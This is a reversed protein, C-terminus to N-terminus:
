WYPKLKKVASISASLAVNLSEMKANVWKLNDEALEPETALIGTLKVLLIYEEFGLLLNLLHSRFVEREQEHYLNGVVIGTLMGAALQWHAQEVSKCEADLRVKKINVKVNEWAGDLWKNAEFELPKNLNALTEVPMENRWGKTALWQIFGLILQNFAKSNFEHSIQQLKDEPMKRSSLLAILPESSEIDKRYPSKRDQLKELQYFSEIWSAQGRWQKFREIFKDCSSDPLYPAFLTLTHILLSVGDMVRRFSKPKHDEAFVLENHQIFNLGYSLSKVFASELTAGNSLDVNSLNSIKNKHGKALHYGRAAKSLFGLKTEVRGTFYHALEFLSGVEGEILELEFECISETKVEGEFEAEVFGQDLVCEILAGNPLHINWKHREFRTEFVKDLNANLSKVDLKAPWISSDFLELNAFCGGAEENIILPVTFEPRLQLGAVDNGALKVTQEARPEKGHKKTTRTRLGIDWQRLTQEATDYYANGLESIGKDEYQYSSEAIAHKFADIQTSTLIFKLEIEM